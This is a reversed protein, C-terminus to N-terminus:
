LYGSNYCDLKPFYISKGEQKHPEIGRVEVNLPAIVIGQMHPNDLVKRSCNNVLTASLIKNKSASVQPNDVEYRV